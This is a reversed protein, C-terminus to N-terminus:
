ARRKKNTLGKPSLGGMAILSWKIEFWDLRLLARALELLMSAYLLPLSAAFFRRIFKIRNRQLYYLALASIKGKAGTGISGGEKHYV